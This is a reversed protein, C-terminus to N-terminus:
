PALGNPVIVQSWQMPDVAVAGVRMEWHLHAATSLGTTGVLGLIDGPSVEQGPGVDIRSLHWFNSTVGLGHDLIVAGGRVELNEALIVKGHAPARIPTGEPAGWDTGGHFSNVPGGNYSRRTGYPSTQNFGAAIPFVFKGRWQQKPSAAQWLALLRELEPRTKDPALLGGKAPPLVIHQTEYAGPFVPVPQTAQADGARVVLTREGLPTIADTALVAWFRDGRPTRRDFAWVLAKDGFAGLPPTEAAITVFAVGVQGQIIGAPAAIEVLPAPLTPLPRTPILIDSQEALEAMRSVGNAALLEAMSLKHARALGSLTQGPRLRHLQMGAATALEPAAASGPIILRQGAFILNPTSLGNAAALTDASVGFRQGIAALTDGAAVIYITATPAPPAAGQAFSPRAGGFLLCTLLLLSSSLRKM